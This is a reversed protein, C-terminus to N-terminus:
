LSPKKTKRLEALLLSRDHSSLPSPFFDSRCFWFFSCSHTISKGCLAATKFSSKYIANAATLEHAAGPRTQCCHRRIAGWVSDQKGQVKQRLAPNNRWLFPLSLSITARPPKASDQLQGGPALLGPVAQPPPIGMRARLIATREGHTFLKSVQWGTLKSAGPPM